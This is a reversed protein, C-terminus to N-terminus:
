PCCRAGPRSLPRSRAQGLHEPGLFLPGGSAGRVRLAHAPQPSGRGAARTPDKRQSQLETHGRISEKPGRPRLKEDTVHPGAGGYGGRRPYVSCAPSGGAGPTALTAGLTGVASASTRPGPRWASGGVEPGSAEGRRKGGIDWSLVSFTVQRQHCERLERAQAWM